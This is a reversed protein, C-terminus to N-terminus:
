HRKGLIFAAASGACFMAVGIIVSVVPLDSQVIVHDALLTVLSGLLLGFIVAYVAENFDRLLKEM